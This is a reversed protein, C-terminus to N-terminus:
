HVLLSSPEFKSSQKSHQSPCPVGRKESQFACALHRPQACSDSSGLSSSSTMAPEAWTTMPDWLFVSIIYQHYPTWCIISPI